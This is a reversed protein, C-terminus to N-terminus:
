RFIPDEVMPTKELSGDLAANILARTHKISMREGVGYPGGSWGPKFITTSPRPRCPLISIPRPGITPLATRGSQGAHLWIWGSP